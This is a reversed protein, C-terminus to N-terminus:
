RCFRGAEDNRVCHPIQKELMHAVASEEDNRRPIVYDARQMMEQSETAGETGFGVRPVCM